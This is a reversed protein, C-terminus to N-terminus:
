GTKHQEINKGEVDIEVEQVAVAIIIKMEFDTFLVNITNCRTYRKQDKTLYNISKASIPIYQM